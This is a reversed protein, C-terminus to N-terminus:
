FLKLQKTDVLEIEMPTSTINSNQLFFDHVDIHSQMWDSPHSEKLSYTVFNYLEWMSNKSNYDFTPREIERKIISLQRSTIIDHELYMRGILEAQVTKNVEIQKLAERHKVLKDFAEGAAQIYSTIAMPTFTQVEGTHKKKFAGYDGSVCGNECIFVRTGLAYKLSLKKNYSNQWGIQLQMESDAVDKIVYRGNAIDGDMASTYEEKAVKFGAQHISELTLEVLEKHSVPKYTNTQKPLPVSFLDNATTRFKTKM